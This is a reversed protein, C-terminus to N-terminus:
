PPGYNFKASREGEAAAGANAFPEIDGVETVRFPHLRRAAVRLDATRSNGALDAALRDLQHTHPLVKTGRM